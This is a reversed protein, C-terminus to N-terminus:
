ARSAVAPYQVAKSLSKRAHVVLRADACSGDLAPQAVGAQVGRETIQSSAVIAALLRPRLDVRGKPRQNRRWRNGPAGACRNGVLGCIELLGGWGIQDWRGLNRDPRPFM